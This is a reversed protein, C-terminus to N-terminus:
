WSLLFGHKALWCIVRFVWTSPVNKGWMLESIHKFATKKGQIKNNSVPKKSSPSMTQSVPLSPAEGCLLTAMRNQLLNSSTSFMVKHSKCAETYLVTAPNRGRLKVLPEVSEISVPCAGVHILGKAEVPQPQLTIYHMPFPEPHVPKSCSM